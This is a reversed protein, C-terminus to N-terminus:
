VHARGIQSLLLALKAEMPSAANDFVYTAARKATRSGYPLAASSLFEVLARASTLPRRAALQRGAGSGESVLAYTGCLESGALILGAVGRSDALQMFCLEPSSVLVHEAVRIFAGMPLERSLVHAVISPAKGRKDADALLVHLPDGASPALGLAALEGLLAPTLRVTDTLGKRRTSRKLQKRDGTFRQWFRFATEHSLIIDASAM